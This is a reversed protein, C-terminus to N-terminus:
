KSKVEIRKRQAEPMVPLRLTLIGDKFDAQCQNGQVFDPLPVRRMFHGYQIESRHLRKENRQTERRFEGSVVLTNGVVDVHIDDPKLGPLAAKVQVENELECIEVPPLWNGRLAPLESRGTLSPLLPEENFDSFIRNIQERIESLPSIFTQSM